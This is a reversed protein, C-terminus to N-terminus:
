VVRVITITTNAVRTMPNQTLLGSCYDVPIFRRDPTQGLVPDTAPGTLKERYKIDESLDGSEACEYQTM